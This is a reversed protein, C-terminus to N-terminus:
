VYNVKDSPMIDQISDVEESDMEFLSVDHNPTYIATSTATERVEVSILRRQNPIYVLENIRHFIWEAINEATPIFPVLTHKTHIDAQIAPVLTDQSWLMCGHDLPLYVQEHLIDKIDGFDMVMGEDSSGDEEVVCGEVVAIAHYTHGHLSRCKSKHNPVRHGM